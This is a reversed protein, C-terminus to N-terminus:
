SSRRRFGRILMWLGLLILATPWIINWAVPDEGLGLWLGFLLLFAAPYGAWHLRGFTTPVFRLILFTLGLGLFFLAGSDLGQLATSDAVSVLGLTILTGGPILAWWNIRSIAYVLIFGVGIGGLTLLGSFREAFVPAFMEAFNAAAIGLLACGPLLWWWQKRDQLTLSVFLAGVIGLAVGWLINAATGTLIGTTQLLLLAGLVILIIGVALRSIRFSM